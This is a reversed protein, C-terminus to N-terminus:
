RPPMVGARLKRVVREWLEPHDGARLVQRLPEGALFERRQEDDFGLEAQRCDLRLEGEDVLEHAADDRVAPPREIQPSANLRRGGLLMFAFRLRLLSSRTIFRM